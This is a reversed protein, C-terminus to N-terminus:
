DIRQKFGQVIDHATSACSRTVDWIDDVGASTLQECTTEGPEHVDAPQMQHNTPQLSALPHAPSHRIPSDGLLEFQDFLRELELEDEYREGELRGREIFLEERIGLEGEEAVRSLRRMLRSCSILVHSRPHRDSTQRFLKFVHIRWCDVRRYSCAGSHEVGGIWISRTVISTKTRPSDTTMLFADVNVPDVHIPQEAGATEDDLGRPAHS